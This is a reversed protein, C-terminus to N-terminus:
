QPTQENKLIKFDNGQIHIFQSDMIPILEYQDKYEEMIQGHHEQYKTNGYHPLVVFDVLGLGENTELQAELPNDFLKAPGINPGALISGASSGIYIKGNEVLDKVIVDFGSKKAHELLYFTNGGAVFIIDVGTLTTRLDNANNNKLDVDVIQFGLTKLKFRDAEVFWKNEYLDAATPVFAVTIATPFKPLYWLISDLTMSASSTLFLQKM